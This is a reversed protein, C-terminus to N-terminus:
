CNVWNKKKLFPRTAPHWSLFFRCSEEAIDRRLAKITKEHEENIRVLEETIKGMYYHATLLM